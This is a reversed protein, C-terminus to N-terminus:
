SIVREKRERLEKKTIWLGRGELSKIHDGYKDIPLRTPTKVSPTRKKRQKPSSTTKFDGFSPKGPCDNTFPSQRRVYCESCRYKWTKDKRDTYDKEVTHNLKITSHM